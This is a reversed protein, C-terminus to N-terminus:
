VTCRSYSWGDAHSKRLAVSLAFFEELMWLRCLECAGVDAGGDQERADDLGPLLYVSVVANRDGVASEPGRHVTHGDADVVASKAGSEACRERTEEPSVDQILFM